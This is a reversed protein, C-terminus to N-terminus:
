NSLSNMSGSNRLLASFDKLPCRNTASISDNLPSMSPTKIRDAFLSGTGLNERIAIPQVIEVFITQAGIGVRDLLDDGAVLVKGNPLLTATHQTRGGTLAGTNTWWGTAPDYLEASSAGNGNGGAVLVKGNPLLTATHESRALAMSGIITWLGTAPDYLEASSDPSMGDGGVALVKGIPLLTSTHDGRKNAMQGTVSWEGKAPDFLTATSNGYGGVVLVKGDPLVTATHMARGSTMSVTPTWIGNRPDYLEGKKMVQPSRGGFVSVRDDADIKFAGHSMRAAVMSGAFLWRDEPLM